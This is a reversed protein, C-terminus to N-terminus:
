STKVYKFTYRKVIFISLVAPLVLLLLFSYEDWYNAFNCLQLYDKCLEPTRIKFLYQTVGGIIVGTAVLFAFSIFAIIVVLKKKFVNESHKKSQYSAAFLTVTFAIAWFIIFEIIM